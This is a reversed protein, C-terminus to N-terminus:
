TDVILKKSKSHDSRCGLELITCASTTLQWL